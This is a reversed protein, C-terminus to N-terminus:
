ARGRMKVVASDGRCAAQVDKTRDCIGEQDSRRALSRASSARTRAASSFSAFALPVGIRGPDQAVVFPCERRRLAKFLRAKENRGYARGRDGFSRRPKAYRERAAERVNLDVGKAQRERAELRLERQSVGIERM